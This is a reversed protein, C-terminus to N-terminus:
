NRKKKNSTTSAIHTEILIIGNKGRDGYSLFDPDSHRIIRISKVSDPKIKKKIEIESMEKGDVLLLPKPYHKPAACSFGIMSSDGSRDKHLGLPRDPTKISEIPETLIKDQAYTTLTTTLILLSIKLSYIFKVKM